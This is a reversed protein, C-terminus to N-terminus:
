PTVDLLFNFTGLGNDGNLPCVWTIQNESCKGTTLFVFNSLFHPSISVFNLFFFELGFNWFYYINLDHHTKKKYDSQKLPYHSKEHVIESRVPAFDLCDWFEELVWNSQSKSCLKM